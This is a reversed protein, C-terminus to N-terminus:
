HLMGEQGPQPPPQTVGFVEQAAAVGAAMMAATFIAHVLQGPMGADYAARMDDLVNAFSREIARPLAETMQPAGAFLEERTKGLVEHGYRAATQMAINVAEDVLEKMGQEKNM